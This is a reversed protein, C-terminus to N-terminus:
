TGPSPHHRTGSKGHSPRHLEPTRLDGYGLRARAGLLLVGREIAGAGRPAGRELTTDGRLAGLGAAVDGGGAELEEVVRLEDGRRAGAGRAALACPEGPAARYAGAGRREFRERIRAQAFPDIVQQIELRLHQQAELAPDIGARGLQRLIRD